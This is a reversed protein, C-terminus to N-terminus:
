AASKKGGANQSELRKIVADLGKQEVESGFDTRFSKVYSIGEITVDYAKWGGSTKRMSFNVPVRSGNDRRVETRVTATTDAPNGRYPQITLRDATFDVLADGYNQLLSQYFADIFRKRQEPTAARWHKGLVLAAAYETDFSPLFHVDVVKRILQPDKRMADRNKELDNLVGRAVSEALESPGLKSTDAAHAASWILTAVILVSAAFLGQLVRNSSLRLTKM